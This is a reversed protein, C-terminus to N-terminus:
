KNNFKEKYVHILTLKLDILVKQTHKILNEMQKEAWM